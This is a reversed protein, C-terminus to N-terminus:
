LLRSILSLRCTLSLSDDTCDQDHVKRQNDKRPQQHIRRNKKSWWLRISRDPNFEKLPIRDTNLVLSNDLTDNSLLSRKDVKLVKLTSFVRELKGNTAPLTLLLRVLILFNFWEEANPARFLWLWLLWVAQYGMTSLSYFQTAHVLMERIEERLQEVQVGANELPVRFREGLRQVAEIGNSSQDPITEEDVIKQWGQLELVFIVDHV